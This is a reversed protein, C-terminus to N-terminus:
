LFIIGLLVALAGFILLKGKNTASFKSYGTWPNIVKDAAYAAQSETFGLSKIKSCIEEYSYKRQKVNYEALRRALGYWDKGCNDLGYVIEEETFNEEKLKEKLGIYSYYDYRLNWVAYKAAQEKFDAGCHEVAYEAEELTFDQRRLYESIEKRSYREYSDQIHLKACRAAQENWDAGICAVAYEATSRSFGERDLFRVLSLYSYYEDSDMNELLSRAYETADTRAAEENDHFEDGPVEEDKFREVSKAGYVAEEYTFKDYELSRIVDEFTESEYEAYRQAMNVANQRWDIGFRDVADVAREETFGEERLLRVAEKHSLFSEEAYKKVFRIEEEEESIEETYSEKSIYEETDDTEKRFINFKKITVGCLPCSKEGATVECGCAPCNLKDSM